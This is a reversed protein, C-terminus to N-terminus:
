LSSPPFARVISCCPLACPVVSSFSSTLHDPSLLRSATFSSLSTTVALDQPNPRWGGIHHRSNGRGLWNGLGTGSGLMTAQSPMGTGVATQFSHAWSSYEGWKKNDTKTWTLGYAMELSSFSLLIYNTWHALVQHRGHHWFVHLQPHCIPRHLSTHAM